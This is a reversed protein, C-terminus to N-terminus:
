RQWELANFALRKRPSRSHTLAGVFIPSRRRASALVSKSPARSVLYTLLAAGVGKTVGLGLRLACRRRALCTVPPATSVPKSGHELTRFEKFIEKRRTPTSKPPMWNPHASPPIGLSWKA